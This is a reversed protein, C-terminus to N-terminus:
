SVLKFESMILSLAKNIDTYISKPTSEFNNKM